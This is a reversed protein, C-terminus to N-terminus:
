GNKLENLREAFFDRIQEATGRVYRTTDSEYSGGYDWTEQIPFYGKHGNTYSFWLTYEYPSMEELQVGIENFMEGAHTVIALDDGLTIVSLPIVETAPMESKTVVASADYGSRFGYQEAYPKVLFYDKLKARIAVVAKAELVMHDRSHDVTGEFEIYEHHIKDIEIPKMNNELCDLAHQALMYGHEDVNLARKERAIRSTSNVNGAAGEFFAVMIDDDAAEMADRFPGPYDASLYDGTGVVGPHARWNVMVVDKKDERAFRIVYMTPDAVAVHSVADATTWDGFGDGAVEGNELWYHRMFNLGETEVTGITASAPALDEVALAAAEVCADTLMERYRIVSDFETNSIDVAAHTHTATIAVRDVHTGAVEAMSARIPDYFDQSVKILDLDCLLSIEGEVDQLAIVTFYLEDIVEESMFRESNGMGGIPVSEAPTINTRGFGVQFVGEQVGGAAGTTSTDANLGSCAAISLALATVLILAIIKKM